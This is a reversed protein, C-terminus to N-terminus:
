HLLVAGLILLLMILIIFNKIKILLFFMGTSWWTRRLYLQAPISTNPKSKTLLLRKMNFLKHRPPEGYCHLKQKGKLLLCLGFVIQLCVQLHCIVAADCTCFQKFVFVNVTWIFNLQVLAFSSRFNVLASLFLRRIHRGCNLVRQCVGFNIWFYQMSPRNQFISLVIIKWPEIATGHTGTSVLNQLNFSKGQM